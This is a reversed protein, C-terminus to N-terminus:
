KNIRPAMSFTENNSKINVISQSVLMKKGKNSAYMKVWYPNDAIHGVSAEICTRYPGEFIKSFTKGDSSLEISVEDFLAQSKESMRIRLKDNSLQLFEVQTECFIKDDIDSEIVIVSPQFISINNGFKSEPSPLFIHNTFYTGKCGGLLGSNNILTSGAITSSNNVFEGFNEIQYIADLSMYNRINGHNYLNNVVTNGHNIFIGETNVILAKNGQLLAKPQVMLFGEVSLHVDLTVNGNILVSDTTRITNGPYDPKWINRDSYKGSAVTYYTAAQSTRLILNSFILASIVCLYNYLQKM